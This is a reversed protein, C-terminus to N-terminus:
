LQCATRTVLSVKLGNSLAFENVEPFKVVPAPGLPPQENRDLTTAITAFNGFPVIELVYEGDTLWDNAAKKIDATSAAKVM